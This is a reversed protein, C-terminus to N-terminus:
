KRVCRVHSGKLDLSTLSFSGEDFSIQWGLGTGTQGTTWYRECHGSIAPDWYCGDKGPGAMPYTSCTDCYANNCSHTYCSDTLTCEGGPETYSCGRILSRLENITPLRWDTYGALNLAKCYLGAYNFDFEDNSPPNEWILSSQKDFWCLQYVGNNCCPDSPSCQNPDSVDPSAKTDVATGLDAATSGDFPPSADTENGDNGCGLVLM